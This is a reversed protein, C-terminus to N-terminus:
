YKPTIGMNYFTFTYSDVFEEIMKTISKGTSFSGASQTEIRILVPKEGKYTNQMTAIYKFSHAPVIRDDFDSTSVLIAPYEVDPKINHIPSYSYLYEFMEKSDRSLGYESSWYRGVTFVHYRLMDMIAISPLAVSFLDPRQNIVAGVLLGGNSAGQIALKGPSTYKENILYEAAAIFDDFTNQKNMKTANLHWEKGYEGGGRINALAFIGGQELWILRSPTFNPVCSANFGGYGHLMTPNSGDLKIGKKHVIFMPVRTGDKSNYFVQEVQYDDPNISNDVHPRKYVTSINESVNYEYIVPPTTFSTYSYYTISDDPGSYFGTISGIQDMDLDHLYHGNNDFVKIRSHANEMYNIIFKGGIHWAGQIVSKEEAIFDKWNDISPNELDIKVIKHMPANYNTAVYLFGDIEDVVYHMHDFDDVLKVFPAETDSLKKVYLGNGVSYQSLILYLYNKSPVVGASYGYESNEPDEYVLVDAAQPTNLRHYYVKCNANLKNYPSREDPEPFRSYFFGDEHWAVWSFRSWKITDNLDKLTETNKIFIEQWESGSESIAYGLYKGDDSFSVSSLYISGDESLYNPNMLEIEKGNIGEKYYLVDQEQLGNNKYYFYKNGIKIPEKEIPVDWLKILRDEVDKWYPINSLYEYTLKNEEEIWKKTEPSNEDELWRYPDAVRTGFYEDYSDGKAAVPYSFNGDPVMNSKINKEKCSSFFIISVCSAIYIYRVM